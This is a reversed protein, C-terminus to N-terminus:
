VLKCPEGADPNDARERMIQQQDDQHLQQTYSCNERGNRTEEYAGAYVVIQVMANGESAGRSM